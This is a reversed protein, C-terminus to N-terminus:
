TKVRKADRKESSGAKSPVEEEAGADRRKHGSHSSETEPPTHQPMTSAKSGAQKQQHQQEPKASAATSPAAGASNKSANEQAEAAPDLPNLHPLTCTQVLTSLGFTDTIFHIHRATCPM